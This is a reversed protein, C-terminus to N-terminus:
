IIEEILPNKLIHMAHLDKVIRMAFDREESKFLRRLQFYREKTIFEGVWLDTLEELFYMRESMKAITNVADDVNSGQVINCAVSM